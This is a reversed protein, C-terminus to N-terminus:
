QMSDHMMYGSNVQIHELWRNPDSRTSALTKRQSDLRTPKLHKVNPDTKSIKM